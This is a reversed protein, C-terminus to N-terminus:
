YRIDSERRPVTFRDVEVKGLILRVFVILFKGKTTEFIILFQSFYDRNENKYRQHAMFTMTKDSTMKDNHGPLNTLGLKRYYWDSLILLLNLQQKFIWDFVFALIEIQVKFETVSIKFWIWIQHWNETTARYIRWGGKKGIYILFFFVTLFKDRAKFTVSYHSCYDRNGGKYRQHSVFIFKKDSM